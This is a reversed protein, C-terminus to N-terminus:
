KLSFSNNIINDSYIFLVDDPNTLDIDLNQLNAFKVYRLDLVIVEHYNEALFPIISSGYSDRFVILKKDAVKNNTIKLVPTAGALFVDYSDINHFYDENYVKEEKDKEYNYVRMNEITENTLYTIKDAKVSSVKRSYLAGYFPYLKKETYTLGEELNMVSKIKTIVKSLKSNIWHIDTKYYDNLSLDSSIDIQKINKDLNKLKNDILKYDKKIINDEYYEKDPIKVFYANAKFNKNIENIKNVFYDLSNESTKAIEFLYGDKEYVGNEEKVNLLYKSTIGKIKRFVDRAPMQDLTYDDLDTFYSGDVVKEYNLVPAQKLKRRETKSIENDKLLIGLTGILVTYIILIKTVINNKM